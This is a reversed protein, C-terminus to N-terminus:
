KKKGLANRLEQWNLIERWSFRGAPLSTEIKQAPEAGGTGFNFVSYTKRVERRGIANREGIESVTGFRVPANLMGIESKKGTLVGGPPLGTLGNVVYTRGGTEACPDSGPLFSNFFLTGDAILPDTVSREGTAASDFFDLYWGKKFGAGVGYSFPKGEIAYAGNNAKALTRAMLEDRQVLSQKDSPGLIRKGTDYVGYFSQVGFHAPATDADEFLKGTGFLVVYGGGPAFVVKPQVTIPQRISKAEGAGDSDGSSSSRVPAKATFLPLSDPLADAWPATGTFDFRWLNGQLDGAYAHRVAGDSDVVLAPTSLGNQFSGDKSPTRFKYYNEGRKWKEAPPKDLSLLFLAGAADTNFKKEGDDKYSNIGGAVVVFHRYESLGGKDVGVRLKAVFPPGFLNGMDPDDADTFELISGLGGDFSSPDTVDLAFIGQAGGGMGSVLVTRWGGRVPADSVSIMGDVYPRHVYDVHTLQNLVRILPGPVYAFLEKGDIASFAHLMGDNAGVYVARLRDKNNQVFDQYGAGHVNAAPAGVYISNSNGIDGLISVRSRFIGQKGPSHLELSRDGRLFELRREGLGDVTGSDPSLDLSARQSGDLKNWKFEVTTLANRDDIRTTYIKRAEPGPYALVEPSNRTKPLGTLV